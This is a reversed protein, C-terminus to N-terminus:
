KGTEARPKRIAAIAEQALKLDPKLRLATEFEAQSEALREQRAFAMGLRVRLDVNDALM